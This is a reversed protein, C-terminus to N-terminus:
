SREYVLNRTSVVTSLTQRFPQNTRADVEPSSVAVTILVQTVLQFQDLLANRIPSDVLTGDNLVYRIQFNDVGFALPQDQFNTPNGAADRGGYVRRILTGNPNAGDGSLRYSVLRIRVLSTSVATTCNVCLPDIALINRLASNAAANVQNLGLPDGFSVEVQDTGRLGTATVLCFGSNGTVLYLDGITVAGNNSPGRVRLVSNAGTIALQDISLGRGGNFADDIYALTVQDTQVGNITDINNSSYIPSLIDFDPDVDPNVDLGFGNLRDDPMLSGQIPYGVGANITDRTIYNLAIRANQLIENRQLTNSRGRRGVELLGYISGMVITFVAVAIVLEVITFGAQHTSCNTNSDRNEM